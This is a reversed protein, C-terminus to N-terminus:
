DTNPADLVVDGCRPCLTRGERAPYQREGCDPCVVTETDLPSRVRRSAQAVLLAAVALLCAVALTRVLRM